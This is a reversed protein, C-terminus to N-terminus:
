HGEPSRRPPLPTYANAPNKSKLFRAIRHLSLMDRAHLVEMRTRLEAIKQYNRKGFEKLGVGAASAETYVLINLERTVALLEDSLWLAKKSLMAFLKYVDVEPGSFLLHYLQNDDDHISTKLMTILREVEKQAGLRHRLVIAYYDNVYDNRKSRLNFLGSVVASVLTGSLVALLITEWMGESSVGKKEQIQGREGAASVNPPAVVAAEARDALSQRQLENFAAGDVLALTAVLAALVGVIMGVSEGGIRWTSKDKHVRGSAAWWLLVGGCILCAGVEIRTRLVEWSLQHTDVWWGVALLATGLAYAAITSGLNRGESEAIQVGAEPNKDTM